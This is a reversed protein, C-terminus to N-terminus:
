TGVQAHLKEGLLSFGWWSLCPQPRDSQGALYMTLM